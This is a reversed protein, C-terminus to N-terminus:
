GVSVNTAVDTLPCPRVPGDYAVEGEPALRPLDGEVDLEVSHLRVVVHDPGGERGGGLEIAGLEAEGPVLRQLGPPISTPFWIWM